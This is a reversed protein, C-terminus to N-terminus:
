LLKRLDFGLGPKTPLPVHGDMMRMAPFGFWEALNKGKEGPKVFSCIEQVLFNPMASNVHFTSLGGSPGKLPPPSGHIHELHQGDRRGELARIGGVHNMDTQLIEVAGM